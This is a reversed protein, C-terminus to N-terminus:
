LKLGRFDPCEWNAPVVFQGEATINPCACTNLLKSDNCKETDIALAFM